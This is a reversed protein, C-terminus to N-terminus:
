SLEHSITTMDAQTAVNILLPSERGSLLTGICPLRRTASSPGASIAPRTRPTDSVEGADAVELEPFVAAIVIDFSTAAMSLAALHLLYLPRIQQLLYPRQVQLLVLPHGLM